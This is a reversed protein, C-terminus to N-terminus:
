HYALLQCSLIEAVLAYIEEPIEQGLEVKSLITILDPDKKVPIGLSQALAIIEEAARGEGKATVKPAELDPHYELSAALRKKTRADPPKKSAM